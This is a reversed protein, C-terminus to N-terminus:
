TKDFLFLSRKNSFFSLIEIIRKEDEKLPNGFFGLKPFLGIKIYDMLKYPIPKEEWQGFWRLIKSKEISNYKYLKKGLLYVNGELPKEIGSLIKLLTSKGSGNPGAIGIISSENCSFSIDAIKFFSKKSYSFNIKEVKIIEM